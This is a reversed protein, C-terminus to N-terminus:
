TEGVGEIEAGVDATKSKVQYFFDVIFKKGEQLFAPM